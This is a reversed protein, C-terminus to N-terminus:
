KKFKKLVVGVVEDKTIILEAVGIMGFVLASVAVPVGYAILKGNNEFIKLMLNNVFYTPIVAIVSYVAIKVM